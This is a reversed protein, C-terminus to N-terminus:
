APLPYIESNGSTFVSIREAAARLAEGMEAVEAGSAPHSFNSLNVVFEVQGERDFLPAIIFALQYECDTRLTSSLKVPYASRKGTFPLTPSRSDVQVDPNYEGFTFGYQRAFAIGAYFDEVERTSPRPSLQDLWREADYSKATAFYAGAFPARLPYRQGSATAWEHLLQGSGARLEIVADHHERRIASAATRYQDSLARLESQAAQLPSFQEHAIKGVAALMPGIVYTMDRNRYLYRSEVLGALLAHCTARGMGLAKVIDTFTFAQGPHEAFFNLVSVLRKVGPPTKSM